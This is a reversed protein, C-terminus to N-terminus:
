DPCPAAVAADADADASRVAAVFARMRQHDKIGPAQEIGSAVDVAFPRTMAIAGAVNDATLGGALVLRRRSRPWRSWDLVRGGGGAEGPAHGDLVLAQASPYGAISLPDDSGQGAQGGAWGLAKWYPMGHRRCQAQTEDGHFQLLDPQVAAIAEDIWAPAQNRLLMVLRPADVAAGAGARTIAALEAAKAVSLRRPSEALVLGLYDVGLAIALEVDGPRTLGCFKIATM